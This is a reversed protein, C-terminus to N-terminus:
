QLRPNVFTSRSRRLVLDRGSRQRKVMADFMRARRDSILSHKTSRGPGHGGYKRMAASPRGASSARIVERFGRDIKNDIHQFSSSVAQATSRIHEIVSCGVREIRELRQFTADHNAREREFQKTRIERMRALEDRHNADDITARHILMKTREDIRIRADRDRAKLVVCFPVHRSIGASTFLRNCWTCPTDRQSM